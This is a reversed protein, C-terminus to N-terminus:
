RGEYHKIDPARTVTRVTPAGELADLRAALAAIQGAQQEVTAKLATIEAEAAALRAEHNRLVVQHAAPVRDYQISEPGQSDYNVLAGMGCEDLQEATFGVYRPPASETGAAAEAQAKDVFTIPDMGLVEAPTVELPRVDTKYRLSSTSRQILGGDSIVCNAASGTTTHGIWVESNGPLLYIPTSTTTLRIDQEDAGTATLRIAEGDVSFHSVPRGSAGTNVFTGGLYEVAQFIGTRDDSSVILGNVAVEGVTLYSTFNGLRVSRNGNAHNVELSGENRLLIGGGNDVVINGGGVVWLNGSDEIRLEGLDVVRLGGSGITAAVLKRVTQLEAIERRIDRVQKLIDGPDDTIDSLLAM